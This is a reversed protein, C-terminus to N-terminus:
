DRSPLDDIYKGGRMMSGWLGTGPDFTMGITKCVADIKELTSEVDRGWAASSANKDARDKVSPHPDGNCEAVSQDYRRELLNQLRRATTPPVGYRSAWVGLASKM